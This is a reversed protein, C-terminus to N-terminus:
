SGVFCFPLCWLASVEERLKKEMERREDEERRRELELVQQRVSWVKRRRERKVKRARKLQNILSSRTSSLSSLRTFKSHLRHRLSRFFTISSSTPTSASNFFNRVFPTRDILVFLLSCPIMFCSGHILIRDPFRLHKLRRGM